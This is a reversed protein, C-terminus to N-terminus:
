CSTNKKLFTKKLYACIRKWYIIVFISVIELIIAIILILFGITNIFFLHYALILSIGQVGIWEMIIGGASLDNLNVDRMIKNVSLLAMPISALVVFKIINIDKSEIYLFIFAIWGNIILFIWGLIKLLLNSTLRTKM